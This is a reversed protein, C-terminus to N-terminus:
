DRPESRPLTWVDKPSGFGVDFYDMELLKSYAYGKVEVDVSSGKLATLKMMGLAIQVDNVADYLPVSLAAGQVAAGSEAVYTRESWCGCPLSFLTDFYQLYAQMEVDDFREVDIGPTFKDDTAFDLGSGTLRMSVADDPFRDIMFIFPLSKRVDWPIFKRREPVGGAQNALKKWYSLFESFYPDSPLM